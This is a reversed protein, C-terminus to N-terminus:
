QRNNSSFEENNGSKLKELASAIKEPTGKIRVFDTGFSVIIETNSERRIFHIQNLYITKDDITVTKM